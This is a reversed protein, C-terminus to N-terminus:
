QDQKKREKVWFADGVGLDLNRSKSEEGTVVGM